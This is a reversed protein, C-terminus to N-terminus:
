NILTPLCYNWFLWFNDNFDWLVMPAIAIVFFMILVLQHDAGFRKGYWRLVFFVSLWIASTTVFMPAYGFNAFVYAPLANTEHFIHPSYELMYVTLMLAGFNFLMVLGLMSCAIRKLWVRDINDQTLVM